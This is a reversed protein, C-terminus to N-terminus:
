ETADQSASIAISPDSYEVIFCEPMLERQEDTLFESKMLADYKKMTMPAHQMYLEAGMVKQFKLQDPKRRKRMDLNIRFNGVEFELQDLDIAKQIIQADVDALLTKQADQQAQLEARLTLQEELSLSFLGGGDINKKIEPCTAAVPCYKCGPGLKPKGVDTDLIRQLEARLDKWIRVIQQTTFVTGIPPGDSRLLDLEVRIEDPMQDKFYIYACLGYIKMQLKSPLEEPKPFRRVSKYDRICIIVKGSIPDVYRYALDWIYSLPVIAANPNPQQHAPANKDYAASPVPTRRKEEVSLIEVNSFDTRHWWATVLELGDEYENNMSDFTGFTLAYGERYLEIMLELTGPQSKEMYVIRVYHELAYHCTTGVDAAKKPGIEPVFELNVMEFKRMCDQANALSSASITKPRM